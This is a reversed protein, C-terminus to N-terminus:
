TSSSYRVMRLGGCMAITSRSKEDGSHLFGLDFMGYIQWVSVNDPHRPATPNQYLNGSPSRRQGPALWSTGDLDLAETAQGGTPDLKDARWTDVGVGSDAFTVTAALLFHVGIAASPVTQRLRNRLPM